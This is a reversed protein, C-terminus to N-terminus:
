KAATLTSTACTHIGTRDKLGPEVSAGDDQRNITLGRHIDWVVLRWNEGQCMQAIETLADEHEHSQIWLGTFCASVYELLRAALTM